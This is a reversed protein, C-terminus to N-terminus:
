FSELWEKLEALFLSKYKFNDRIGWGHGGSPYIHLAAPVNKRKLAEYYNVGNISSVGKDDDSFVIFARPTEPTVQKENSYLDILSGPPNSGLLNKRSGQHTYSSDMTIVPYLLIQFAPRIEPKAHTAITSALHGGASSGMIGIDMVNINWEKANEKVLRIAEEADTYPVERNGFPMRYKLVIFAIGQETFFPAFDYGEHNYALKAYGGGPCAIVARGTAKERQPLYVRISPKYNGEAENFPLRDKGNTNPLGQRWLDIEIYETKNQADASQSALLCFLLLLSITVQRIM